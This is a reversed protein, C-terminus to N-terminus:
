HRVASSPGLMFWTQQPGMGKIEIPGHPEFSFRGAIRMRTTECLHIRGNRGTQELRAALNVTDGWVDYSFKKIGIVGALVPGTAIGIRMEITVGTEEGLRAVAVHMDVAMRALRMAHDTTPEPLGAAVMYADGITKIKEVGHRAALADFDSVLRNLLGVVGVAGLRRSLPVFGSIDAFLISAEQFTDAVVEGPRAKLREVVSDPLINRLLQDTELRAREALRFAYWVTAAILVMTTIAAQLYLSDRVAPDVRILSAEGAFHFWAILHLLLGFAVCAIVLRIRGLGLVLFPAAAAVFYQLHIGSTRGLYATFAILAVYECILIVMGGAIEHFRHALPVLVAILVLALNILIVPRYTQYDLSAHQLAYGATTIAILYAIMNLIMLRRRVDPPYGATGLEALWALRGAIWKVAPYVSIGRLIKLRGPATVACTKQRRTAPWDVSNLWRTLNM